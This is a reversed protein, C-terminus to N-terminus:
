QSRCGLAPPLQRVAPAFPSVLLKSPYQPADCRPAHVLPVILSTGSTLSVKVGNPPTGSGGAPHSGPGCWNSWFLSLGASKGPALARLSGPPDALMDLPEPSAAIRKVQWRTAGAAQGTFSVHPWGVLSCATTSTNTLRIGGVLSGTAGQLFLHARLEVSRCPPALLPEASAKVPHEDLWPIVVGPAAAAPAVVAVILVSALVGRAVVTRIQLVARLETRMSM